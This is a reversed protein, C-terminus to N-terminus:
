AAFTNMSASTKINHTGGNQFSYTRERMPSPLHMVREAAEFEENPLGDPADRRLQSQIPM